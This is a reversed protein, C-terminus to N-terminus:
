QYISRFTDGLPGLVPSITQHLYTFPPFAYLLGRPWPHALADWGMPPDDNRLSFFLPCHTSERSAFLDVEARGLHRWIESVVQSHLRWEGPQPGGRSMTDAASILAGPVHVARLSLFHPHAWQWLITTLKCLAPSGRDSHQRHPCHRPSGKAKAPFPASRPSAGEARPCKHASVAEPRDLCRQCWPRRTRRGVGFLIRRHVSTPSLDSSGPSPGAQHKSPGEVVPPGQSDESLGGSQDQPVESPVLGLGASMEACAVHTLPRPPGGAGHSGNLGYPSPLTGLQGFCAAPFPRPLDQFGAAEEPDFCSDGEELGPGYGSFHDGSFARATKKQPEPASRLGPRPKAAPSRPQMCVVLSPDHHCLFASHCCGFSTCGAQLGLGLTPPM